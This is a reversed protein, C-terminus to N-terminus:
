GLELVNSFFFTFHASCLAFLVSFPLYLYDNFIQIIEKRNELGFWTEAETVTDWSAKKTVKRIEATFFFNESFM